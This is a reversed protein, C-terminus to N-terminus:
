IHLCQLFYRFGQNDLSEIEPYRILHASNRGLGFNSTCYVYVQVRAALPNPLHVLTPPLSNTGNLDGLLFRTDALLEDDSASFCFIPQAWKRCWVLAVIITGPHRSSLPRPQGTPHFVDFSTAHPPERFYSGRSLRGAGSYNWLRSNSFLSVFYALYIRLTTAECHADRIIATWSRSGLTIDEDDRGDPDGVV